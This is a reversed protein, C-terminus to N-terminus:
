ATAVTIAPPAHPGDVTHVRHAFRESGARPPDALDHEGFASEVSALLLQHRKRSLM